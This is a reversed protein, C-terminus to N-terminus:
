RLAVLKEERQDLINLAEAIVEEFSSFPGDDLKKHILESIQDSLTLRV